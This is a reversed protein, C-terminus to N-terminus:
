ERIPRNSIMNTVKSNFGMTCSNQTRDEKSNHNQIDYTIIICTYLM